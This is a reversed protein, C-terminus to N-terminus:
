QKKPGPWITGPKNQSTSDAPLPKIQGELSRLATTVAEESRSTPTLTPMTVANGKETRTPMAVAQGQGNLVPMNDVNGSADDQKKDPRQQAWAGTACLLGVLVMLRKM